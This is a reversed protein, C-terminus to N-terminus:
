PARRRTGARAPPQRVISATSMQATACEEAGSSTGCNAAARCHAVDVQHTPSSMATPGRQDAGRPAVQHRSVRTRAHGWHRVAPLRRSPANLTRWWAAAAGVWTLATLAATPARPQCASARGSGSSEASSEVVFEWRWFLLVFVACCTSPMWHLVAVDIRRSRGTWRRM